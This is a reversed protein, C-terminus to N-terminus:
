FKKRNGFAYKQRLEEFHDVISKFELPVDSVDLSPLNTYDVPENATDTNLAAQVISREAQVISRESKSKFKLTPLLNKLSALQLNWLELDGFVSFMRDKIAEDLSLDESGIDTV